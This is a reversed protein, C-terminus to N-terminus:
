DTKKGPCATATTFRCGGTTFSYDVSIANLFGAEKFRDIVPFQFLQLVNVVAQAL